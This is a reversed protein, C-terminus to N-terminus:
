INADNLLYEIKQMEYLIDNRFEEHDMMLNQLNGEYGFIQHEYHNLELQLSDCMDPNTEYRMRRQTQRIYAYVDEVINRQNQIYTQESVLLFKLWNLQLHLVINNTQSITM